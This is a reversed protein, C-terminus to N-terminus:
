PAEAESAFLRRPMALRTGRWTITEIELGYLKTLLDPDHLDAIPCHAALKGGHLAIAEDCWGMALNLDHLVMIVSLSRQRNLRRLLEMVEIQHAIDLASVPEDLLMVEAGQALLMAIWGRQREGGSLTDVLQDALATTGTLEIAEECAIRDKASRRGLLGHWPFRGLGVLERLTMGPAATPNQPLWALKRAFDRSPWSGIPQGKFLVEGADPCDQRALVKLLTSKGSGNHGLIATMLGPEIQLDLPGLLTRGGAHRELTKCRFLTM